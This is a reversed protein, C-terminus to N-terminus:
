TFDYIIVGGHQMDIICYDNDGYLLYPLEAGVIMNKLDITNLEPKNSTINSTLFLGIMMYVIGICTISIILNYKKCVKELKIM